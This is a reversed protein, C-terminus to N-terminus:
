RGVARFLLTLGFMVLFVMWYDAQPLHFSPAVANYVMWLAWAAVLDILIFFILAGICGGVVKAIVRQRM